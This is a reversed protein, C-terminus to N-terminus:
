EFVERWSLRGEPPRDLGTNGKIFGDEDPVDSVYYDGLPTTLSPPRNFQKGSVPTPVGNVDVFDDQNVKGDGDLDYISYILRGGTLFDLEMNWSTAGPSCPDDNPILTAVRLRDNLIQTNTIVREGELKNNYVLNLVWGKKSNYNVSNASLATVQTQTNPFKGRFIIQQSVLDGATVVSGTDRIGYISQINFDSNDPTEIYKGTGFMVMMGGQPHLKLSPRSTIPQPKGANTATFLPLAGNSIQFDNPNNHNLDFKWLNGLLDGAYVYNIFSQGDESGYLIAPSSLGNAISGGVNTNLTSLLTGTELDIVLLKAKSSNSNYGNGTIVVWKGNKLRGIVPESFSFGLEPSEFEWLVNDKGLSNPNTIDIAFISRGGGRLSGILITRWSGNIFADSVHTNGDVFYAHDYDEDTLLALNRIVARPVYSFLEVGGGNVQSDANFIHLMGANAGVVLLPTRNRKQFVFNQYSKAESVKSGLRHYGFDERHVFVPNSNIIDGIVSNGRSRMGQIQQGRIFKLINEDNGLLAKQTSTLGNTGWSFEIAQNEDSFSYIKRLNPAPLNSSASWEKQVSVAGNNFTPRYASVDGTWSNIDFSTSFLLTSTSPFFSSSVVSTGSPAVQAVIDLLVNELESAFTSPDAASFFGGRSNVAAHLMDDIKFEDSDNPNPWNITAGTSIAEFAEDPDITGFVGLGVAYTVMHQQNQPNRDSTPVNNTLNTLDTKWYYAAVDALTNSFTDAFPAGMNGDVNGVGPSDGNWYGDSMLITFNQRCSILDGGAQGPTTSYPGTDTVNTFYNGAGQLARRLPTGGTDPSNHLWTYFNSKHTSTLPRVGQMVARQSSGDVSITDQNIRGWGLRFDNPLSNFADGIGARSALTRTRYYSYWNAFNQQQEASVIHRTYCNNDELGGACGQNFTYYDAPGEAGCYAQAGTTWPFRWTARFSTSLNVNGTQQYGDVWASFFNANPLRTGDARKPPLYTSNPNFYIKNYDSSRGRARQNIGSDSNCVDVISDPMHSWKMSGSDDIIFLLNPPVTNSLFLPKQAIELKGVVESGFVEVEALSLYDTINNNGSKQILLYRGSTNVSNFSITASPNSGIQTQWNSTARATSLSSSSTGLAFPTESLMVYVNALRLRCQNSVLLGNSCGSEDRNHIVIQSIDYVKGLDLHWWDRSTNGNTHTITGSSYFKRTDGDIARSAVGQFGTSSQTANGSRAVNNSASIATFSLSLLYILAILKYLNNM